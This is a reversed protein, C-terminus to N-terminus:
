EDGWRLPTCGLQMLERTTTGAFAPVWPLLEFVRPERKRAPSDPSLRALEFVTSPQYAYLRFSDHGSKNRGDVRRLVCWGRLRFAHIGPVLGPMVVTTQNATGVRRSCEIARVATRKRPFSSLRADEETVGACAPTWSGRPFSTGIM